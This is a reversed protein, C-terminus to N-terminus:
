LSNRYCINYGPLTQTEKQHYEMSGDQIMWYNKKGDLFPTLEKEFGKVTSFVRGFSTIYYGDAFDIPKIEEGDQLQINELM